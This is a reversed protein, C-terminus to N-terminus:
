RLRSDLQSRSAKGTFDDKAPKLKILRVADPRKPDSTDKGNKM